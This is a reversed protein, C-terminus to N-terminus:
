PHKYYGENTFVEWRPRLRLFHEGMVGIPDCPQGLSDHCAEFCCKLQKMNVFTIPLVSTLVFCNYWRVPSGYDPRSMSVIFVTTTGFQTQIIALEGIKFLPPADCTYVPKDEQWLQIMEDILDDM